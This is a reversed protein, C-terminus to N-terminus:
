YVSQLNIVIDEVDVTRSITMCVTVTELIRRQKVCMTGSVVGGGESSKILVSTWNRVVSRKGRATIQVNAECCRGEQFVEIDKINFRCDM